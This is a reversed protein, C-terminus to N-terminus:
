AAPKAKPTWAPALERVLKIGYIRKIGDERLYERVIAKDPSAFSLQLRETTGQYDAAWLYVPLAMTEMTHRAETFAAEIALFSEGAQRGWCSWSFGIEAWCPGNPWGRRREITVLGREDVGVVALMHIESLAWRVTIM